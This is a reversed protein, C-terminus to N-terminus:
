LGVPLTCGDSGALPLPLPEVPIIDPLPPEDFITNMLIAGQKILHKFKM